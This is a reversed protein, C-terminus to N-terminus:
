AKVGGDVAGAVRQGEANVVLQLAVRSWRRRMTVPLAVKQRFAGRIQDAAGSRKM